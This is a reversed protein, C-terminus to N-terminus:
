VSINIYNTRLDLQSMPYLLLGLLTYRNKRYFARLFTPPETENSKHFEEFTKQIHKCLRWLKKIKPKIVALKRKITFDSWLAAKRKGKSLTGNECYGKIM